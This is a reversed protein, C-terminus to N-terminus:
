IFKAESEVESEEAMRSAESEQSHDWRTEQAEADLSSRDLTAAQESALLNESSNNVSHLTSEANHPEESEQHYDEGHAQSEEPLEMLKALAASARKSNEDGQNNKQSVIKKL